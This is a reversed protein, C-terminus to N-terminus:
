KSKGTMSDIPFTKGTPINKTTPPPSLTNTAPDYSWGIGANDQMMFFTNEDTAIIDGGECGALTKGDDAITVNDAVVITNTVVRGVVVQTVKGM